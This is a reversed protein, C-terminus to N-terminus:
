TEDSRNEREDNRWQKGFDVGCFVDLIIIEIFGSPHCQCIYPVGIGKNHTRIMGLKVDYLLFLYSQVRTTTLFIESRAAKPYRQRNLEYNKMALQPNALEIGVSNSRFTKNQFIKLNSKQKAESNQTLYALCSSLQHSNM